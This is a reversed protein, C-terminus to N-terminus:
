AQFNRRDLAIICQSSVRASLTLATPAKSLLCRPLRGPRLIDRAPWSSRYVPLLRGYNCSGRIRLCPSTRFWPVNYWSVFVGVDSHNEQFVSVLVAMALAESLCCNDRSEKLHSLIPVLVMSGHSQVAHM